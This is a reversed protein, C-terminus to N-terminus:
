QKKKTQPNIKHLNGRLLARARAIRRQHSNELAAVETHAVFIREAARRLTAILEQEAQEEDDGRELAEKANFFAPETASWFEALAEDAWFAPRADKKDSWAARLAGRLADCAGEAHKVFAGLWGVVDRDPTQMTLSFTESFRALIKANGPTRWAFVEMEIRTNELKQFWQVVVPAAEHLDGEPKQVGPHHRTITLMDALGTWVPRDVPALQTRAEDKVTRTPTFPHRFLGGAVKSGAGYAVVGVRAGLEGCTACIGDAVPQYRIRRPQWFLGQVLGIRDAELSQGAGKTWPKPPDSPYHQEVWQRSLTNAWAMARVDTRHVLTTLAPQGRVGPSWGRGGSPATCQIAYLAMVACPLCLGDFARPHRTLAIGSTKSVDLLISSTQNDGAEIAGDQLFPRDGLLDFDGRHEKVLASVEDSTLPRAIRERLEDPGRAPVLAQILASLLMRAAFRFDERPHVVETAAVRATLLDVFSGRRAGEGLPVWPDVLINFSM